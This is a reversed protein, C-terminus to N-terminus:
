RIEVGGFMSTASIHVVPANEHALNRRQNNIGGFVPTGSVKVNVDSPLYIEISGFVANCSITVDHNIIARDLRLKLSGFAADVNAGEFVQNDCHITQGCFVASYNNNNTQTNSHNYGNEQTNSYSNGNEQTNSYTYDINRQYWNKRISDSCIICIGITVLILPFILRGFHWIGFASGAFGMGLIVFFLGWILNSNRPRM